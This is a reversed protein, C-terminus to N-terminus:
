LFTSRVARIREDLSMAPVPAPSIEPADIPAAPASRSASASEAPADPSANSRPEVSLFRNLVNGRVDAPLADLAAVAAVELLEVDTRVRDPMTATDTRAGLVDTGPVAPMPTMSVERLEIETFREITDPGLAVMESTIPRFGISFGTSAGAAIVAKVYELAARGDATDFLDATMLLAPGQDQMATVVGVHAGTRREHDMLLPLKRAPVKRSITKAACGRAFMTQYTDVQEYTLAIGSVRGCIGPPLEEARIQLHTEAIHRTLVTSM